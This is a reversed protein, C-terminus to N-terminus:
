PLYQVEEVLNVGTKALVVAQIHAILDRVDSVTAQDVNLMFNAHQDSLAAGGRQAGKLGASEILRGAFDGDPNKFVSGFTKGRLPQTSLRKQVKEHIDSRVLDATSPEVRFRAGLVVWKERLAYSDRYSFGLESAPLWRREGDPLQVWAAELSDSVEQGWCGFNMAVMGGISAPVGASFTLGLLGNKQCFSLVKNVSYGASMSLIDGDLCMPLLAEAMQVYVASSDSPDIVSNSGRGLLCISPFAECAQDLEAETEVQIVKSVVGDNQFSTLRSIPM